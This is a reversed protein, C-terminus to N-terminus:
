RERGSLSHPRVSQTENMTICSRPMVSASVASRWKSCAPNVASSRTPHSGRMRRSGVPQSGSKGHEAPNVANSRSSHSGRMRRSAPGVTNQPFAPIRWVLPRRHYKRFTQVSAYVFQQDAASASAPKHSAWPLSHASTQCWPEPRRSTCRRGMEGTRTRCWAATSLSEAPHPRPALNSTPLHINSPSISM